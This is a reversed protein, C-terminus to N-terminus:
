SPEYAMEFVTTMLTETAIQLAILADREIRYQSPRAMGDPILPTDRSYGTIDTIIDRVLGIFPKKAIFFSQAVADSQYYRIERLAVALFVNAVQYMLLLVELAVSLTGTFQM